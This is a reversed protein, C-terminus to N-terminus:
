DLAFCFRFVRNAFRTRFLFPLFDLERRQDSEELQGVRGERDFCSGQTRQSTTGSGTYMRDLQSDAERSRSCLLSLSLPLLAFSVQKVRMAEELVRGRILDGERAPDGMEPPLEFQSAALGGAGAGAARSAGMKSSEARTEDRLEDVEMSTTGRGKVEEVWPEEEEEGGAEDAAAVTVYNGDEDVRIPLDSWYEADDDDAPLLAAPPPPLPLAPPPPPPNQSPPPLRDYLSFDLESIDLLPVSDYDDSDFSM